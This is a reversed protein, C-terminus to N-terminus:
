LSATMEWASAFSNAQKSAVLENAKALRKANKVEPSDERAENTIRVDPAPAQLEKSAELASASDAIFQKRWFDKLKEAKPAIKGSAVLERVFGDAQANRAEEVEKRAAELQSKLDANEAEVKAKAAEMAPKKSKGDMYAGCAAELESMVADDEAEADDAFGLMKMLKAKDVMPNQNTKSAVLPAIREFAPDSVLGGAANGASSDLLGVIRGGSVACRPSFFRVSPLIGNAPDCRTAQLGAPTWKVRCWIGDERWQFEEPYAAAERADHHLDFFPGPGGEAKRAELDRQLSQAATEDVVITLRQPKGDLKASIMQTGAPAYMVWEPAETLIASAFAASLEAKNM